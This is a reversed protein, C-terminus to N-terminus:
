TTNLHTYSVATIERYAQYTLDAESARTFRGEVRRQDALDIAIRSGTRLQRVLSWQSTDGAVAPLVALALASVILAVRKM